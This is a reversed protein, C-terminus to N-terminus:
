LHRLEILESHADKYRKDYTGDKNKKPGFM